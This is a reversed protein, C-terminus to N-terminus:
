GITGHANKLRHFHAQIAAEDKAEEEEEEADQLEAWMEKIVGTIKDNRLPDETVIDTAEDQAPDNTV